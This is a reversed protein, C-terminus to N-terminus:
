KRSNARSRLEQIGHAFPCKEATRPCGDPHNVFFWCLRTKCAESLLKRKEDPSLNKTQKEKQKSQKEKSWDRIQVNGHVVEFVQYNNRLLTQLGGCEKKLKQLTDSDLLDAVNKLCLSGGKRWCKAGGEGNHENNDQNVKLLAKAVQLVISDVFDRPLSACNRVKEVKERPQFGAVWMNSASCDTDGCIDQIVDDEVVSCDTIHNPSVPDKMKRFGTNEGTSLTYSYRERIYQTREEDLRKECSPSYTRQNGILCVRKTSPIRLCDEEVKFGCTSGVETIFDLYARYQTSKTQKRCYKGYFDFFCCPLVFYCCSYSSRAAVVPIWPTLEDSHNGIIWDVDPFLFDDSPTIACEKLCTQPGYMNWIKRKRVDIGRGPHGENILIHVLLGNGCGLDVFSQKDTLGKESREAEWLVLLYTAIAVDEYVFKEPNTVEPWIKVMEKYKAKLRHYCENYKEVSILSLTSKFYNKVNETSWKVIKTLLVDSLWAPKPYVIGDAKWKEPCMTSVSIFWFLEDGKVQQLKFSYINSKKLTYREAIHRELPIFTATNNEFDQIVLERCNEAQTKPIVTRLTVKLRDGAREGTMALLIENMERDLEARLGPVLEEVLPWLGAVSCRTEREAVLCCGSLRRNAVQPKRTWVDLAAWFGAADLRLRREALTVM